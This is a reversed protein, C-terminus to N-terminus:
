LLVDRRDHLGADVGLGLGTQVLREFELAHLSRCVFGNGLTLTCRQENTDLSGLTRNVTMNLLEYLLALEGIRVAQEVLGVGIQQRCQRCLAVVRALDDHQAAVGVGREVAQGRQVLNELLDLAVRQAGERHAVVGVDDGAAEDLAVVAVRPAGLVAHVQHLPAAVILEIGVEVGGLVIGLVVGLPALQVGLLLELVLDLGEGLRAVLGLAAEHERQVREHAIGDRVAVVIGGHLHELVLESLDHVVPNALDRDQRVVRAVLALVEVDLQALLHGVPQVLLLLGLVGVARELVGAELVREDEAGHVVHAVTLAPVALQGLGHLDDVGAAAHPALDVVAEGRRELPVGAHGREHPDVPWAGVVVLVGQVHAAVVVEQAGVELRALDLADDDVGHLLGLGGLLADEHVRVEGPVEPLGLSVGVLRPLLREAVDVVVGRNGRLAGVGQMVQGAVHLAHVAAAGRPLVALGRVDLVREGGEAGLERGVGDRRAIAILHDGDELLDLLVGLGEALLRPGGGHELLHLGPHVGPVVEGAGGDGLQIRDLCGKRAVIGLQNRQEGLARGCEIARVVMLQPVDVMILLRTHALGVDRGHDVGQVLVHGLLRREGGVGVGDHGLEHGVAGIRRHAARIGHEVAVHRRAGLVAVGVLDGLAIVEAHGLALREVEVGNGEDLAAALVEEIGALDLVELAPLPLVNRVRLLVGRAGDRHAVEAELLDVAHAQDSNAIVSAIGPRGDVLDRHVLLDLGGAREGARHCEGVLLRCVRGLGQLVGGVALVGLRPERM